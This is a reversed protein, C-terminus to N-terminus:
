RSYITKLPSSSDVSLLYIGTAPLAVNQTDDAKPVVAVRRGMVDYVALTSGAVGVVLLGDYTTFVTPVAHAADDVGQVPDDCDEVINYAGWVAHARYTDATGCPVALTFAPTQMFTNALVDPPTAGLCRVTDLAACDSFAQGAIFRLSTPMTVKEVVHNYYFAMGGIGLTGDAITVEAVNSGAIVYSGIYLVGQADRNDPNSAYGTYSFAQSLIVTLTSPLEITDLSSCRYFAFGEISTVGEPVVVRTLGSCEEFASAGVTTVTYETGEWTVSQPMVMSGVPKEYYDWDPNVVKVVTGVIDYYLTQGSPAVQSFDFARAVSVTALLMAIIIIKKAM